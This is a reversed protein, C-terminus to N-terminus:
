QIVKFGKPPPPMDKEKNPEPRQRSLADEVPQLSRYGAAPGYIQYTDNLIGLYERQFNGLKERIVSPTDKVSPIFPRLRPWEAASIAAGSRDHLKLSGIDSILARVKASSPSRWDGITESLPINYVPGVAGEHGALADLTQDIKRIGAADEILTEAVKQPPEKPPAQVITQPQESESKTSTEGPKPPRYDWAPYGPPIRGPVLVQAGNILEMHPKLFGTEMARSYERREAVTATDDEIKPAIRDLTPAMEQSEKVRDANYRAINLQLTQAGQQLREADREGSQQSLRLTQAQHELTDQHTQWQQKAQKNANQRQQVQNMFRQLAADGGTRAAAQMPKLEKLDQATLGANNTELEPPLTRRPPQPQPQPQPQPTATATQQPPQAPQQAGPAPPTTTADSRTDTDLSAVQVRGPQQPQLFSPNPVNAFRQRMQGATMSALEPNAAVAEPSLFSSVPTQDPAQMIKAAPGAGVWHAVRLSTGSPEVGQAKLEPANQQALWTVAAQGLKPDNRAAMVQDPTMGAFLQPNATAFARWTSDIFQGTGTASSRPNRGTGETVIVSGEYTDAGPTAGPTAVTGSTANPPGGLGITNGYADVAGATSRLQAQKEASIGQSALYQVPGLGPFEAPANRYLGHQQGWSVVQPYLERMKAEDGNSANLLWQAGRSEMEINKLGMEQQAVQQQVLSNQHYDATRYVQGMDLLANPAPFPSAISGSM